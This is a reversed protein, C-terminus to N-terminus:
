GTRCGDADGLRREPQWGGRRGRACGTARSEDYPILRSTRPGPVAAEAEADDHGFLRKVAAPMVRVKDALRFYIDALRFDSPAETTEQTVSDGSVSLYFEM